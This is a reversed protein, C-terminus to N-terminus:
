KIQSWLNGPGARRSRGRQRQGAGDPAAPDPHRAVPAAVRVHRPRGGREAPLPLPHVPYTVLHMIQSWMNGPSSGWAVEPALWVQWM